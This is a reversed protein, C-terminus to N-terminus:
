GIELLICNYVLSLIPNFIIMYKYKYTLDYQVKQLPTSFQGTLNNEAGRNIRKKM